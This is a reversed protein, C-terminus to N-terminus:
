QEMAEGILIFSKAESTANVCQLGQRETVFMLYQLLLGQPSIQLVSICCTLSFSCGGLTPLRM